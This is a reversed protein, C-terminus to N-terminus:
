EQPQTDKYTRWLFVIGMASVLTCSILVPLAGHLDTFKLNDTDIGRGQLSYDAIISLANHMVHALVPLWLSHSWYFLYGLYVGLAFRPIFGYFQFHLVSFIFATLLIGVHPNRTWRTMLPQLTGQFLFEECVGALVAFVLINAVLDWTGRRSTVVELIHNAADELNRIFEAIVGEQPMIQMNFSSLVSVIPLLTVSVVFTIITMSFDPLSNASNYNFLQRNQCYAFLLAPLLFTGITTFAQTIRIATVPDAADMISPTHYILLVILSGISSFLLLGGLMFLALVILQIGYSKEQLKM